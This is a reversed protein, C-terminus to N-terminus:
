LKEISPHNALLKKVGYEVSFAITVFKGDYSVVIGSGFIKHKVKDGVKFSVDNNLTVTPKIEKKIEIKKEIPKQKINNGNTYFNPNLESIFDSEECDGDSGFIYRTSAHTIYLNEKARTVGVYFIRREEELEDTTEINISPFIGNETAVMFVTDFELGKAQHYTTLIVSNSDKAEDKDTKLALDSLFSLLYDTNSTDNKFSEKIMQRFEKINQKKDKATDFDEETDLYSSYNFENDILDIIDEPLQNEIQAKISEIKVKFEKLNNYGQGSGTYLDIAKFLSINNDNAIVKLKNVIAEGIKRKPTNIIREFSLNDDNILILRLYAIMDKIEARSFFSLGGYIQYPINYRILGEEFNRSIYNARYMIAFDNYKKGSLILKKMEDLVYQVEAKASLATYIIPKKGKKDSSFMQKKIQNPNNKISDNALTLIEETSRYNQELLILKYDTYDNQFKRINKIQAGRFSYISQFDDGVVFINRNKKSLLKILDYQITNTDQFEDILIYQFKDQYKELIDPNKKLLEITKIILDDFDLANNQMLSNDYLGKVTNFTDDLLRDKVSFNEFNKSKSILNKIIKPKFSDINNEKMIDRVMKLSDDEDLINFYKTYPNLRDIEIRLLRSCFSHFTSIWMFSTSTNIMKEIREKMENAAKNTFTVALINSPSIGCKDILYAIRTTLVSTKGSGAGAMVMVPGETTTVAKLQAENLRDLLGM